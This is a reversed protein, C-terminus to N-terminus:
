KTLNLIDICHCRERFLKDLIVVVDVVRHPQQCNVIIFSSTVIQLYKTM